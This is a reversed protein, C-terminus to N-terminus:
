KKNKENILWEKYQMGLRNLNNRYLSDYFGSKLTKNTTVPFDSRFTCEPNEDLKQVKELFARQKDTLIAM